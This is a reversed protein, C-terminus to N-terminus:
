TQGLRQFGGDAGPGDGQGGESVVVPGDGPVALLRHEGRILTIDGSLNDHTGAPKGPGRGDIRRERVAAPSRQRNLLFWSQSSCAGKPPLAGPRHREGAGASARWRSSRAKEAYGLCAESEGPLYDSMSTAVRVIAIMPATVPTPESAQCTTAKVCLPGRTLTVAKWASSIPPPLSASSQCTFMVAILEPLAGTVTFPHPKRIGFPLAIWMILLRDNDALRGCRRSGPESAFEHMGVASTSLYQVCSPTLCWSM